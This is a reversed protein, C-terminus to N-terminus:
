VNEPCQEAWLGRYPANYELMPVLSLFGSQTCEPYLKVFRCPSNNEFDFVVKRSRADEIIEEYSFNGYPINKITGPKACLKEFEDMFEKKGTHHYALWAFAPFRESPWNLPRGFYQYSYNIKMWFRVMSELMRVCRSQIEYPAFHMYENLGTFIYIYQDSSIQDSIKGGYCKCFFGDERSASLNYLWEIADFCRHAKELAQVDKTARYKWVMAALYAGTCMGANEYSMYESFDDWSRGPYDHISKGKFFGREFPRMTDINLASRVLGHKDVLCEEVDQEFILSKQYLDNM